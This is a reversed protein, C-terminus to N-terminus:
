KGGWELGAPFFLNQFHSFFTKLIGVHMACLFLVLLVLTDQPWAHGNKEGRHRLALRSQLEWVVARLRVGSRIVVRVSFIAEVM